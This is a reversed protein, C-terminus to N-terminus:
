PLDVEVLVDENKENKEVKYIKSKQKLVRDIFLTGNLHDTEHQIVTALFGSFKQQHKKGSLDQWALKIAWHRKVLGLYGPVSLCGEYPFEREPVGKTMKKSRWNIQPNVFVYDKKTKLSYAVFLRILKGIQVASLGVGIREGQPGKKIIEIMKESLQRVQRNRRNGARRHPPTSLSVPKSKKRLIPDPVRRIKLKVSDIKDSKNIATSLSSKSPSKKM